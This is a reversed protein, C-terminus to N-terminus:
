YNVTLRARYYENFNQPMQMIPHYYLSQKPEADIM